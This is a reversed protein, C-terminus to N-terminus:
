GTRLLLIKLANEQMSTYVADFDMGVTDYLFWNFYSSPDLPNYRQLRLHIMRGEAKEENTKNILRVFALVIKFFTSKTIKYLDKGGFIGVGDKSLEYKQAFYSCTHIIVAMESSHPKVNVSLDHNCSRIVESIIDQQFKSELENRLLISWEKIFKNMSKCLDQIWGNSLMTPRIKMISYLKQLLTKNWTQVYRIELTLRDLDYDEFKKKWDKVFMQHKTELLGMLRLFEEDNPEFGLIEILIAFVDLLCFLYGLCESRQKSKGKFLKEQRCFQDIRSLLLGHFFRSGFRKIFPRPMFCCGLEEKCPILPFILFLLLELQTKTECFLEKSISEDNDVYPQEMPKVFDQILLCIVCLFIIPRTM